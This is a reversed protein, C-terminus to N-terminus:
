ESQNFSLINPTIIQSQSQYHYSTTTDRTKDIKNKKLIFPSIFYQSKMTESYYCGSLCEEIYLNVLAEIDPCPPAVVQIAANWKASLDNHDWLKSLASCMLSLTTVSGETSGWGQDWCGRPQPLDTLTPAPVRGLWCRWGSRSWPLRLERWWRNMFVSCAMTVRLIMHLASVRIMELAAFVKLRPFLEACSFQTYM